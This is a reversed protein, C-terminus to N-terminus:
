PHSFKPFLQKEAVLEGEGRPALLHFEQLFFIGNRGVETRLICQFNLKMLAAGHGGGSLPLAVSSFVFHDVFSQKYM